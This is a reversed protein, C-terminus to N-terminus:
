KNCNCTENVDIGCCFKGFLESFDDSTMQRIYEPPVPKKENKERIRFKLNEM